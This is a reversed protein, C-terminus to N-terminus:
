TIVIFLKLAFSFPQRYIQSLMLIFCVYFLWFSFPSVSFSLGDSGYPAEQNKPCCPPTPPQWTIAELCVSTCKQVRIRNVLGVSVSHIPVHMYVCSPKEKLADWNWKAWQSHTNQSNIYAKLWLDPPSFDSGQLLCLGRFVLSYHLNGPFTAVNQLRGSFVSPGMRHLSALETWVM